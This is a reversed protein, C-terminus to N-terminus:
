IPYCGGGTGALHRMRIDSLDWTVWDQSGKTALDWTQEPGLIRADWHDHRQVLSAAKAEARLDLSNNSASGDTGLRVDVGGGEDCSVVHYRRM